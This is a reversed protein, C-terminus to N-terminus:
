RVQHLTALARLQDSTPRVDSLGVASPALVAELIYRHFLYRAITSAAMVGFQRSLAQEITYLVVACCHPFAEVHTSLADLIAKVAAQINGAAVPQDHPNLAPDLEFTERSNLVNNVIPGLARTLFPCGAVETIVLWLVM